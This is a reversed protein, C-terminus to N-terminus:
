TEAKKEFNRCAVVLKTMDTQGDAYLLEPVVPWIEM